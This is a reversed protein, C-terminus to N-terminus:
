SPMGDTSPLDLVVQLCMECQKSEELLIIAQSYPKFRFWM